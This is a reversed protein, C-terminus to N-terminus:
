WHSAHKSKQRRTLENIPVLQFWSSTSNTICFAPLTMNATQQMPKSQKNGSWLTM